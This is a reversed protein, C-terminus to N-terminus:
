TSCIHCKSTLENGFAAPFTNVNANVVGGPRTNWFYGQKTYDFVWDADESLYQLRDLQSAADTLKAILEPKRTVDIAVTHDLVAMLYIGFLLPFQRFM